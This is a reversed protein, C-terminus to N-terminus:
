SKQYIRSELLVRLVGMPSLFGVVFGSLTGFILSGWYPLLIEAGIGMLLFFVIFALNYPISQRKTSIGIMAGSIIGIVAGLYFTPPAFLFLGIVTGYVGVAAVFWALLFYGIGKKHLGIYLSFGALFSAGLSYFSPVFIGAGPQVQGVQILYGFFLIIASITGFILGGFFMMLPRLM